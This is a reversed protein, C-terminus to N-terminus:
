VYEFMHELRTALGPSTLPWVDLERAVENKQGHQLAECDACLLDIVHECDRACVKTWDRAGHNQKFYDVLRANLEFHLLCLYPDQLVFARAHTAFEDITLQM